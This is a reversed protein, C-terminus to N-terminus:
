KDLNQLKQVYIGKHQLKLASLTSVTSLTIELGAPILVMLIVFAVTFNEMLKKFFM